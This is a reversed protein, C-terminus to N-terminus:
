FRMVFAAGYLFEHSENISIFPHVSTSTEEVTGNQIRDPLFAAHIIESIKLGFYAVLFSYARTKNIPEVEYKGTIENYNRSPSFEKITYYLLVNNAHFYVYGWTRWGRYFHGGGGSIMSLYVATGTNGLYRQVGQYNAALSLNYNAFADVFLSMNGCLLMYLSFRYRALEASSIDSHDRQLRQPREHIGKLELYLYPSFHISWLALGTYDQHALYGLFPSVFPMTISGPVTYLMMLLTDNSNPATFVLERKRGEFFNQIQNATNSYDILIFDGERMFSPIAIPVGNRLAIAGVPIYRMFSTIKSPNDLNKISKRYVTFLGNSRFPATLHLRNNQIEIYIPKQYRYLMGSIFRACHEEFIYSYERMSLSLASTPIHAFYRYMTKGFYPVDTSFASIELFLSHSREEIRGHVIVSIKAQLAFREICSEERCSFKELQDRLLLSNVPEFVNESAIFNSRLINELHTEIIRAFTKTRPTETTIGAVGILTSSFAASNTLVGTTCVMLFIHLIKPM